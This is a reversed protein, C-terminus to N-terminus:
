RGPVAPEPSAFALLSAPPTMRAALLSRSKAAAVLTQARTWADDFAAKRCELYAGSALDKSGGDNCVASAAVMLRHRLVRQDSPAALDLGRLSVVRTATVADDALAPQVALIATAAFAAAALGTFLRAKINSM